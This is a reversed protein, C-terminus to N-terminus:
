KKDLGKENPEKEFLFLTNVRKNFLHRRSCYPPYNKLEDKYSKHSDFFIGTM